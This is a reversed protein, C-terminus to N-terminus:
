RQFQQMHAIKENHRQNFVEVLDFSLHLPVNGLHDVMNLAIHAANVKQLFHVIVVFSHEVILQLDELKDFFYAFIDFLLRFVAVVLTLQQIEEPIEDVAVASAQPRVLDLDQLDHL